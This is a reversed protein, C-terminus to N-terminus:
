QGNILSDKCSSPLWFEELVPYLKNALSEFKEGIYHPSFVRSGLGDSWHYNNVEEYNLHYMTDKYHCFLILKKNEPSFRVRFNESFHKQSKFTIVLEHNGIKQASLQYKIKPFVQAAINAAVVEFELSLTINM